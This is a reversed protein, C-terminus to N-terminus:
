ICFINDNYEEWRGSLHRISIYIYFDKITNRKIYDPLLDLDEYYGISCGGFCNKKISLKTKVFFGINKWYYIEVIFTMSNIANSISIETIKSGGNQIELNQHLIRIWLSYFSRIRSKFENRRSILFFLQLKSDVM